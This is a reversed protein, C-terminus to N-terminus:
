IRLASTYWSSKQFRNSRYQFTWFAGDYQISLATQYVDDEGRLSVYWTAFTKNVLRMIKIDKVLNGPIMSMDLLDQDLGLSHVRLLCLSRLSRM